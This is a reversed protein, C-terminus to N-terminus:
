ATDDFDGHGGGYRYPVKAIQNGATILAAVEPPAGAPAIALGDAGVAATPTPAPAPAPPTDPAQAPAATRSPPSSYSMGGTSQARAHAPLVGLLTALVLAVTTRRSM